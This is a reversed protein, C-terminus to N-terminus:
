TLGLAERAIEVAGPEDFADYSGTNALYQSALSDKLAAIKTLAAKLKRCEDAKAEHMAVYVELACSRAAKQTTPFARMIAAAGADVAEPTLRIESSPKDTSM